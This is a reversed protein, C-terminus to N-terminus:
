SIKHYSIVICIYIIHSVNNRRLDLVVVTLDIEYCLVGGRTKVRESGHAKSPTLLNMM